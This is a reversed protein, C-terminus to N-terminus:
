ERRSVSPAALGLFLAAFALLAPVELGAMASPTGVALTAETGYLARRVGEVCFRMPNLRM